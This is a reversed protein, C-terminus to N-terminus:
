VKGRRDSRGTYDGGDVGTGDSITIDSKPNYEGVPIERSFPTSMAGWYPRKLNNCNGNITRFQASSDCQPDVGSCSDDTFPVKNM